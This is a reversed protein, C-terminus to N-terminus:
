TCVCKGVYVLMSLSSQPGLVSSHQGHLKEYSVCEARRRPTTWMRKSDEYRQNFNYMKEHLVADVM